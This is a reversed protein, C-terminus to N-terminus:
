WGLLRALEELYVSNDEATLIRRLLDKIEDVCKEEGLRVSTLMAVALLYNEDEEYLERLEAVRQPDSVLLFAIDDDQAAILQRLSPIYDTEAGICRKDDEDPVMFYRYKLQHYKLVEPRVLDESWYRLGDRRFPCTSIGVIWERTGLEIKLFVTCPILASQEIAYWRTVWTDTVIAGEEFVERFRPHTLETKGFDIVRQRHEAALEPLPKQGQVYVTEMVRRNYLCVNVTLYDTETRLIVTGKGDAVWVIKVLEGRKRKPPDIRDRFAQVERNRVAIGVAYMVPWLEAPPLITIPAPPPACERPACGATMGALVLVLGILVVAIRKTKM